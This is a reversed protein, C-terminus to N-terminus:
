FNLQPARVFLPGHTVTKEGILQYTINGYPLDSNPSIVKVGQPNPFPPSLTIGYRIKSRAFKGEKQAQRMKAAQRDTVRQNSCNREGGWHEGFEILGLLQHALSQVCEGFHCGNVRMEEGKVQEIFRTFRKWDRDCVTGTDGLNGASDAVFHSLFILDPNVWGEFFTRQRPSSILVRCDSSAMMRIQLHNKYFEYITPDHYNGYGPAAHEPHVLFEITM